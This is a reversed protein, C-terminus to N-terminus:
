SHRMYPTYPIISPPSSLAVLSTVRWPKRVARRYVYVTIMKFDPATNSLTFGKYELSKLLCRPRSDVRLLQPLTDEVGVDVGRTCSM